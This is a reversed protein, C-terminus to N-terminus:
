IRPKDRSSPRTAHLSALISHERGPPLPLSLHYLSGLLSGDLFRLLLLLSQVLGVAIKKRIAAREATLRERAEHYAANRKATGVGLTTGVNTAAAAGRDFVEHAATQM